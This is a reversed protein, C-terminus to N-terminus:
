RWWATIMLRLLFLGIFRNLVGGIGYVMSGKFLHSLALQIM